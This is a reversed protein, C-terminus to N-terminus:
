RPTRLLLGACLDPWDRSYIGFTPLVYRDSGCASSLISNLDNDRSNSVVPGWSSTGQSRFRQILWDGQCTLCAFAGMSYSSGGWRSSCLEPCNHEGHHRRACAPGALVQPLAILALSLYVTRFAAPAM